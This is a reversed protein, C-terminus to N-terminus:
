RFLYEKKKNQWGAEKSRSTFYVVVDAEERHKIYYIKKNAAAPNKTYYWIGKNGDSNQIFQTKYVVVDAERKYPTVFVKINAQKQHEVMHVIQANVKSSAATLASIGIITALAYKQISM